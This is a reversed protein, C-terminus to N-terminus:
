YSPDQSAAATGDGPPGPRLLRLLGFVSHLTWGVFAVAGMWVLWSVPVNFLEHQRLGARAAQGGAVFARSTLVLCIALMVLQTFVACARATRPEFRAVVFAVSMHGRRGLMAGAGFIATVALLEISFDLVWEGTPAKVARMAVAYLTVLLALALAATAVFQEGRTVIAELRGVVGAPSPSPALHSM